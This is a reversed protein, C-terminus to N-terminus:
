HGYSNIQQSYELGNLIVVGGFSTSVRLSDLRKEVLGAGAAYREFKDIRNITSSFRNQVVTVTSDFQLNGITAPAHVAEYFYREEPYFNFANGNWTSRSTIPFSLRIFRINEEVRQVNYPSRKATWVSSLQWPLTDVVRHYRLLTFVTDATADLFASDVVEKLQFHYQEVSTDLGYRDDDERHVVSDVDYIIWSGPELPFYRFATSELDSTAIEKKCSTWGSIVIFVFAVAWSKGASILHLKSSTKM